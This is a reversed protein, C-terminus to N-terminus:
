LALRLPLETLCVSATPATLACQRRVSQVAVGGFQHVNVSRVSPLM